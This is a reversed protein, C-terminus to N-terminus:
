PCEARWGRWRTSRGGPLLDHHKSVRAGFQPAMEIPGGTASRSAGQTRRNDMAISLINWYVPVL